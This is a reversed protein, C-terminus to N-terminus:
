LWMEGYHGPGPRWRQRGKRDMCGNGGHTRGIGLQHGEAALEISQRQNKIVAEAATIRGIIL